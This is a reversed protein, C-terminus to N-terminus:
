LVLVYMIFYQIINTENSGSNVFIVKYVCKKHDGLGMIKILTKASNINMKEEQSDEQKLLISIEVEDNDVVSKRFRDLSDVHSTNSFGFCFGRKVFNIISHDCISFHSRVVNTIFRTIVLDIVM